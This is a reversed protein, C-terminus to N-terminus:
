RLCRSLLTPPVWGIAKIGALQAWAGLHEDISDRNKHPSACSAVPAEAKAPFFVRRAAPWVATVAAVAAIDDNACGISVAVERMQRMLAVPLCLAAFM